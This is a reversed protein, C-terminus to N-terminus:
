RESPVSPKPLLSVRAAYVIRSFEDRGNGDLGMLHQVEGKDCGLLHVCPRELKKENKVTDFLAENPDHPAIFPAFIALVLVISTLFLGIRGSWSGVVQRAM